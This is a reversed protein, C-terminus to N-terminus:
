GALTISASAKDVVKTLFTRDKLRGGVTMEVNASKLNWMAIYRTAVWRTTSGSRYTYVLTTVTLPGQGSTSKMTTTKRSLIKLGRTGKLAAQKRKAAVATSPGNVINMRIRIMRPATRDAFRYENTGLRIARWTKPLVATAFCGEDYYCNFYRKVFM